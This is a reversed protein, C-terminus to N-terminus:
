ADAGARKEAEIAEKRYGLGRKYYLVATIFSFICGAYVLYTGLCVPSTGFGPLWEIEALGPGPLMPWSLLLMSFGTMLLATAFKGVLAVDVPRKRYARLYEAGVFLVLDRMILFGAVWGPLDGHFVLALVGTFLLARDVVPDLVKGFWSVTQTARAINGDLWDTVAAIIYIALAVPHNLDNVFMYLFVFTLVLRILTIANALTLVKNSPNQATGLPAVAVDFVEGHEYTEQRESM